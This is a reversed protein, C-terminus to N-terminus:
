VAGKAWKLPLKQTHFKLVNVVGMISEQMNMGKSIIKFLVSWLCFKLIQLPKKESKLSASAIINVVSTQNKGDVNLTVYVSTM